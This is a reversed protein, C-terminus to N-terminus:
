RFNYVMGPMFGVGPQYQFNFSVDGKKKRKVQGTRVLKAFRHYNNVVQTGCALGLFAGALVDTAWHKNETFRSLGILTAASYSIIPIIPTNKYEMAYVRAAAFALTSHQSPFSSNSTYFPGHFKTSNIATTNKPDVPRVRGSLSKFITSWVLSTVYSQAALATTTRLKPHKFVYGATAVTVFVAGEYIGGVNTVTHSIKSIGPNNNRFRVSAKQIPKDLFSVGVTGALLVAGTLWGKKKIDLPSLFQQKFDDLLLIGFVRRDMRTRENYFGPDILNVQKTTDSRHKTSDLKNILTDTSQCFSEVPVYMMIAVIFGIKIKM